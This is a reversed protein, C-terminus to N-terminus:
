ATLLRLRLSPMAIFDRDLTVLEIDATIAMAGLWADTWLNSSPHHGRIITRLTSEDPSINLPVRLCRPDETFRLWASLAQEPSLPHGTM